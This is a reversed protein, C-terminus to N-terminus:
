HARCLNYAWGTAVLQIGAAVEAGSLLTDVGVQAHGEVFDVQQLLFVAGQRRRSSAGSAFASVAFRRRIPM